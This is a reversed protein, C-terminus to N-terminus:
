SARCDKTTTLGWAENSSQAQKTCAPADFVLWKVGNRKRKCPFWHQPLRDTNQTVASETRPVVSASLVIPIYTKTGDHQELVRILELGPCRVGRPLMSVERVKWTGKVRSKAAPERRM